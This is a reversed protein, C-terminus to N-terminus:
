IILNGSMMQKVQKLDARDHEEMIQKSELMQKVEVVGEKVQNMVNTLEQHTRESDAKTRQFEYIFM